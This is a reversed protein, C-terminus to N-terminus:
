YFVFINNFNIGYVVGNVSVENFSLPRESLRICSDYTNIIQIVGGTVFPTFNKFYKIGNYTFYKDNVNVIYIM